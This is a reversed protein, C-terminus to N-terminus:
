EAPFRLNFVCALVSYSMCSFITICLLICVKLKEELEALQRSLSEIEFAIMEAMDEDNGDDKALASM